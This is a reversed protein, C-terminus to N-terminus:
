ILYLIPSTEVTIWISFGLPSSVFGSLLPFSQRWTENVPDSLAKKRRTDISPLFVVVHPSLGRV